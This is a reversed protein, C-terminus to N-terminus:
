RLPCALTTIKTTTTTMSPAQTIVCELLCVGVVAGVVGVLPMGTVGPLETGTLVAGALVVGAVVGGVVVLVGGVVVGGAKGVLVSTERRTVARALPLVLVADAATTL